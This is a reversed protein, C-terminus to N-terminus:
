YFVAYAFVDIEFSLDRILRLELQNAFNSKANPTTLGIRRPIIGCAGVEQIHTKKM